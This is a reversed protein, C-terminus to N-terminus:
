EHANHGGRYWALLEEALTRAKDKKGALAYAVIAWGSREKTLKDGIEEFDPVILGERSCILIITDYNTRSATTADNERKRALMRAHDIIRTVYKQLLDPFHRIAYYAHRPNRELTDKARREYTAPDQNRRVANELNQLDEKHRNQAPASQAIKQILGKPLMIGLETCTELLRVYYGEPSKLPNAVLYEVDEKSLDGGAHIIVTAPTEADGEAFFWRLQETRFYTDQKRADDIRKQLGLSELEERTFLKQLIKAITENHIM